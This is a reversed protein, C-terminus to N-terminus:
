KSLLLGKYMLRQDEKIVNVRMWKYGTGLPSEQTDAYIGYICDIYESATNSINQLKMNQFNSDVCIIGCRRRDVYVLLNIIPLKKGNIDVPCDTILVLHIADNIYIGDDSCLNHIAGGVYNYYQLNKVDLNNKENMDYSISCGYKIGYNIIDM